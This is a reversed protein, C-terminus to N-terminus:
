YDDWADDDDLFGDYADDYDDYEDRFDDYYSEIDHDDPDFSTKGSYSNGSVSRRKRSNSSSSSSSSKRSSSSSSSSSRSKSRSTNGSSSKRNNRHLGQDQQERHFPCLVGGPARKSNCEYIGCKHYRCYPSDEYREESCGRATCKETSRMKYMGALVPISIVILFLIAIMMFKKM